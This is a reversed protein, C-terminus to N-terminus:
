KFNYPAMIDERDRFKLMANAIYTAYRAEFDKNM